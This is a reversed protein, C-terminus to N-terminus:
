RRATRSKCRTLRSASTSKTTDEEMRELRARDKSNTRLTKFKSPVRLRDIRSDIIQLDFLARLKDEATHIKEQGHSHFDTTNPHTVPNTKTSSLRVAFNLFKENIKQCDAYQNAMRERLAGCRAISRGEAQFYEHYKVDSTIYVDALDPLMGLLFAGSGGCVAIRQM